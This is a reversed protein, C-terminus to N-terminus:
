DNLKYYVKAFVPPLNYVTFFNPSLLTFNRMEKLYEFYNKIEHISIFIHEILNFKLYDIINDFIFKDNISNFIELDRRATKFQQLKKIASSKYFDKHNIFEYEAVNIFYPTLKINEILKSFISYFLNNTAVILDKIFYESVIQGVKRLSETIKNCDIEDNIMIEYIYDKLILLTYNEENLVLVYAKELNNSYKILEKEYNYLKRYLTVSQNIDLTLRHFSSGDIAGEIIVNGENDPEIARVHMNITVPELKLRTEKLRPLNVTPRRYDIFEIRDNKQIIQAVYIFDSIYELKLEVKENYSKYKM